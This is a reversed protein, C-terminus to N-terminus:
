IASNALEGNKTSKLFRFYLVSKGVASHYYFMLQYLVANIQYNPYLPPMLAKGTAVLNSVMHTKTWLVCITTYCSTYHPKFSVPSIRYTKLTILILAFHVLYRPHLIWPTMRLNRCTSAGLRAMQFSNIRLSGLNRLIARPPPSSISWALRWGERRGVRHRWCKAAQDNEAKLLVKRRWWNFSEKELPFEQM